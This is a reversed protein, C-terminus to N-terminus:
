SGGPFLCVPKRRTTLCSAGTLGMSLLDLQRVVVARVVRRRRWWERIITTALTMLLAVSM